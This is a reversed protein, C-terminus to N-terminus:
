SSFADSFSGMLLEAIRVKLHLCVTLHPRTSGGGFRSDDRFRLGEIM